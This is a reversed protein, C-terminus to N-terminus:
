TPFLLNKLLAGNQGTELQLTQVMHRPLAQVARHDGGEALSVDEFLEAGVLEDELHKADLLQQFLNVIM